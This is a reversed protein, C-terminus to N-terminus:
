SYNEESARRCNPVRRPTSSARTRDGRISSRGGVQKRQERPDTPDGVFVQSNAESLGYPQVLPAGIADEIRDFETADFGNMFTVVARRLSSMADSDFGDDDIMRSYMAGIANLFTVDHADILRITEAPDFHSQLVVPTGSTLASFLANYGLVGCFPLAGISVDDGTLGLHEGVAHSHAILSRNTQQCGKPDSTTGSTYFISAVAM